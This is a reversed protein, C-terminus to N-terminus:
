TTLPMTAMAARGRRRSRTLRPTRTRSPSKLCAATPSRRTVQNNGDRGYTMSALTTTNHKDTIGMLRDANDPTQTATVGNQYAISTDFSDASPTYTTTNNLWDKVTTMRGAGDYGYTVTLTGPYTISTLQSKLDYGYGVTVAAGNEESTLRGLLDWIDTTTGTGDAITLRRGDSDYTINTINPTTGDSYTVTKLESDADYTNTICSASPCTGGPLQTTLVNGDGDLSYTTTNNDADEKSTVRGLSDYGYTLTKNGKGDKQDLVTGDLNYDTILTTQPSDARKVQTQENDLDYVYTTLNADGDTTTVLNRDADYGYKTTHGLPDTVTQVDGFQDTQSNTQTYSYTTYFPSTPPPNACTIIGARPPYTATKWGIANYCTTSIDGPPDKVTAQDGYTDYTYKWTKGNPDLM